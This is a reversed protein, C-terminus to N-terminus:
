LKERVRIGSFDPIFSGLNDSEGSFVLSFLNESSLFFLLSKKKGSEVMITARAPLGPPWACIWQACARTG